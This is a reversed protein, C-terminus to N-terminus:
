LRKNKTKKRHTGNAIMSATLAKYGTIEKILAMTLIISPSVKGSTAEQAGHHRGTLITLLQAAYGAIEIAANNQESNPSPKRDLTPFLNNELLGTAYKLMEDEPCSIIQELDQMGRTLSHAFDAPPSLRSGPAINAEFVERTMQFRRLLQQALSQTLDIIKSDSLDGSEIKRLYKSFQTLQNEIGHGRPANADEFSARMIIRHLPLSSKISFDTIIETDHFNVKKNILWERTFIESIKQIDSLNARADSM